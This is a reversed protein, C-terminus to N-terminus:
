QWGFTEKENGSLENQQVLESSREEERGPRLLHLMIWLQSNDFTPPINYSYILCM